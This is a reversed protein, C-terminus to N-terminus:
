RTWAGNIFATGTPRVEVVGWQAGPCKEAWGIAADLDPVEVM